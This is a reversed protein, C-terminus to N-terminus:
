DVSANQGFGVLLDSRLATKRVVKEFDAERKRYDKGWVQSGVM